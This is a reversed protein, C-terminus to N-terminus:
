LFELMAENSLMLGYRTLKLRDGDWELLGRAVGKAIAKGFVDRMSIGFRRYFGEEGVGGAMRLGLIMVTSMEDAKSFVESEAVASGLSMISSLYDMPDTLNSRREENVYSHAGAGLGLYPELRWYIINHRCEYGPLAFNSIEYHRYGALSLKEEASYYMDIELDEDCAALKGSKVKRWLPTEEELMLGYASIHEPGLGLAEDLTEKWDKMTQGPIAYILDVNINDFGAERALHFASVSDSATHVRGLTRLLSDNLSQVGISLRTVGIDRLRRLKRYTVTGPNSEVTIEANHTMPFVQLVETLLSELLKEPLCTPTGGGLYITSVQAGVGRVAASQIQAEQLVAEVYRDVTKEFEDFSYM